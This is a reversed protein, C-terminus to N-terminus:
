GGPVKRPPKKTDPISPAVPNGGAIARDPRQQHLSDADNIENENGCSNVLAIAEPALLASFRPMNPNLKVFNSTSAAIMAATQYPKLITVRSVSSRLVGTLLRFPLPDDAGEVSSM